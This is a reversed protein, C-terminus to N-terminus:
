FACIGGEKQANAIVHLALTTKGSSEPGFIEIIRGRPFGKGGLCLDLSPSGSPIGRIEKILSDDGLRMIAGKGYSKEIESLAARLSRSREARAAELKPDTSKEVHKEAAKAPAGPSASEADPTTSKPKTRPDTM